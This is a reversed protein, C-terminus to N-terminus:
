EGHGEGTRTSRHVSEPPVGPCRVTDSPPSLQEIWRRIKDTSQRAQRAILPRAAWNVVRNGVDVYTEYVLLHLGADDTDFIGWGGHMHKVIGSRVEATTWTLRREAQTYRRDLVFNLESLIPPDIRFEVRTGTEDCELVETDIDELVAQFSEYDALAFWIRARSARVQTYTRIGHEGEDNRIFEVIVGERELADRDIVPNEARAAMGTAAILVALFGVHVVRMGTKDRM